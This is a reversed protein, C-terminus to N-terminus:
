EKVMKCLVTGDDYADDKMANLVTAATAEADKGDQRDSVEDVVFTINLFDCCTRLKEADAYPYTWAALLPCGKQEFFPIRDKSPIAAPAYQLVWKSAEVSAVEYHPNFLGKWPCLSRLDPLRYSRPTTSPM